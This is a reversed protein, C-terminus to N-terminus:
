TERAGARREQQQVRPPGLRRSLDQREDHREHREGCEDPVGVAHSRQVGHVREAGDGEVGAQAKERQREPNQAGARLAAHDRDEDPVGRPPRHCPAEDRQRESQGERESPQPQLTLPHAQVGRREAGARIRHQVDHDEDSGDEPVGGCQTARVGLAAM